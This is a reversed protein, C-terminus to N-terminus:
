IEEIQIPRLTLALRESKICLQLLTRDEMAQGRDRSIYGLICDIQGEDNGLIQTPRSNQM